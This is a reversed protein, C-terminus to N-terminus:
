PGVRKLTRLDFAVGQPAEITVEDATRTVKCGAEQARKIRAELEAAVRQAHQIQAMAAAVALSSLPRYRKM